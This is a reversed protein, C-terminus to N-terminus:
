AYSCSIPHIFYIKNASNATIHITMCLFPAGTHNSRAASHSLFMNCHSASLPILGRATSEYTHCEPSKPIIRTHHARHHKTPPHRRISAIVRSSYIQLATVRPPYLAHARSTTHDRARDSQYQTLEYIPRQITFHHEKQTTNSETAQSILLDISGHRKWDQSSESLIRSATRVATCKRM